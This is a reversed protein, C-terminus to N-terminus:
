YGNSRISHSRIFIQTLLHIGTQAYSYRNSCIGEEPDKRLARYIAAVRVYEPAGTRIQKFSVSSAKEDCVKSVPDQSASRRRENKGTTYLLM